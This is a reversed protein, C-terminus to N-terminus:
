SPRRLAAVDSFAVASLARLPRLRQFALANRPVLTPAGAADVLWDSPDLYSLTFSEGAEAIVAARVEEPGSWRPKAEHNEWRRDRLWGHFARPRAQSKVRESVADAKIADIIRDASVELRAVRWAAREKHIDIRGSAPYAARAREFDPDEGEGPPYPPIQERKGKGIQTVGSDGPPTVGNDGRKGESPSMTDGLSSAGTEAQVRQRTNSFGESLPLRYFPAFRGHGLSKRDGTPRLLRASILAQIGRQVTRESVEMELALTPVLAWVDGYADAYSAIHVLVQKANRDRQGAKNQCVQAKAWTVAIDSM